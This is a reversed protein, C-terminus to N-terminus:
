PESLNMEGGARETIGLEGNSAVCGNNLSSFSSEQIM